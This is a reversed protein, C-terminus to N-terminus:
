PDIDAASGPGTDLGPPAWWAPSRNILEGRMFAALNELTVELIRDVAGDTYWALHPTVVVNLGSFDHYTKREDELVDLGAGALRGARLAAVLAQADVM